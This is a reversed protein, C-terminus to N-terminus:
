KKKIIKVVDIYYPVTIITNKPNDLKNVLNNKEILEKNVSGDANFLRRLGEDKKGDSHKLINKAIEIFEDNLQGKTWFVVDAKDTALALARSRSNIQILEANVKMEKCIAALLKINYGTAKGDATVYDMPPLDGTVAFHITEAGDFKEFEVFGEADMNEVLIDNVNNNLIVLLAANIKDRLKENEAKLLMSYPLIDVKPHEALLQYESNKKLLYNCTMSPLAIMNIKGSDLAALMSNLDDFNETVTSFRFNEEVPIFKDVEEKSAGAFGLDGLIVTKESTKKVVSNDEASTVNDAFGALSGAFILCSLIYAIKDKKDKM